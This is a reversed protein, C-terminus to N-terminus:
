RQTPATPSAAAAIPDPRRRGQAPAGASHRRLAQGILLLPLGGLLVVVLATGAAASWTRDGAVAQWGNWIVGAALVFLAIRRLEAAVWDPRWPLAVLCGGLVVAIGALFLQVLLGLPEVLGGQDSADLAVWVWGTLVLTFVGGVGAIHQRALQSSLRRRRAADATFWPRAALFTVLSALAVVGLTFLLVRAM